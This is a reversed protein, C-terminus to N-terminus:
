PTRPELMVRAGTIQLTSDLDGATQGALAVEGVWTGLQRHELSCLLRDNLVFRDVQRLFVQQAPEALRLAERLLLSADIQLGGGQPSGPVAGEETTEHIEQGDVVVRKGQKDDLEIVVESSVLPLNLIDPRPGGRQDTGPDVQSGIPKLDLYVMCSFRGKPKEARERNLEDLRQRREGEETAAQLRDAEAATMQGLQRLLSMAASALRGDPALSLKVLENVDVGLKVALNFRWRQEADAARYLAALANLASQAAPVNASTLQGALLIPLAERKWLEKNEVLGSLLRERDADVRMRGFQEALAHIRGSGVLANAAKLATQFDGGGGTAVRALLMELGSTRGAEQQLGGGGAGRPVPAQYGAQFQSLALQLLAARLAPDGQGSRELRELLADMAPTGSLASLDAQGLLGLLQIQIEPVLRHMFVRFVPDDEDLITLELDSCAALTKPLTGPDPRILLVRLLAAKLSSDSVGGLRDALVVRTGGPLDALRTVSQATGDGLVVEVAREAVKADQSRLCCALAEFVNVPARSTPLEAVVAKMLRAQRDDGLVEHRQDMPTADARSEVLLRELQDLLPLALKSGQPGHLGEMVSPGLPAETLVVSVFAEHRVPEHSSGLSDALVQEIRSILKSDVDPRPPAPEFGPVAQSSDGALGGRILGLKGVATSAILPNSSSAKEIFGEIRKMRDAPSLDAVSEHLTELWAVDLEVRIEDRYVTHVTQVTTPVEIVVAAYGSGPRWQKRDDVSGRDRYSTPEALEEAPEGRPPGLRVRPQPQRPSPTSRDGPALSTRKAAPRIVNHCSLDILGDEALEADLQEWIPENGDQLGLQDARVAVPPADPKAQGAQPVEMLVLGLVRCVKGDESQAKVSTRTVQVKGDQPDYAFPLLLLRRGRPEVPTGEDQMTDLLLPHSLGFRLDFQFPGGGYLHWAEALKRAEPHAGDIALAAKLLKRAAVGLRAEYLWAALEVRGAVDNAALRAERVAARHTFWFQHWLQPSQAKEDLLLAPDAALAKDACAAAAPYQRLMAFQRALALLEAPQEAAAIQRRQEPTPGEAPEQESEALTAQLGISGLVWLASFLWLIGQVGVHNLARPM